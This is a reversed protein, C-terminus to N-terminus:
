LQSASTSMARAENMYWPKSPKTPFAQHPQLQPLITPDAEVLYFQDKQTKFEGIIKFTSDIQRFQDVRWSEEEHHLLLYARGNVARPAAAEEPSLRYTERGLQKLYYTIWREFVEVHYLVAEPPLIENIGAAIPKVSRSENRNPAYVMTQGIRVTFMCLILAAVTMRASEQFSAMSLLGFAAALLVGAIAVSSRPVGALDTLPVASIGAVGILLGAIFGFQYLFKLLRTRAVAPALYATLHAVAFYAPFLYRVSKGEAVSLMAFASFFYSANFILFLSGPLSDFEPIRKKKWVCHAAVILGAVLLLTWPMFGQALAGFYYVGGRPNHTESMVRDLVEIRFQRGLEPWGVVSAVFVLWSSVVAVFVLGGLLNWIVFARPTFFQASLFRARNKYIALNFFFQGAIFFFIVPPGKVLFALGAAAYATLLLPGSARVTAFYALSFSIASLLGYLLDIEAMTSLVFFTFCTVLIITSFAAFERSGGAKRATFYQVMAFLASCVVSPFRVIWESVGGFLNMAGALTWYYLPPKTLIVSHILRPVLYDGSEYMGWAILTRDAETHRFFELADLGIINLAFTLGALLFAIAFDKADLALPVALSGSFFGSAARPEDVPFEKLGVRPPEAPNPLSM